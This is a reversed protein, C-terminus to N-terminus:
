SLKESDSEIGGFIGTYAGFEGRYKYHQTQGDFYINHKEIAEKFELISKRNHNLERYVAIDLKGNVKNKIDDIINMIQKESKSQIGFKDLATEPNFYKTLVIYHRGKIGIQDLKLTYLIQKKFKTITRWNKFGTVREIIEELQWVELKWAAKQKANELGNFWRSNIEDIVEAQLVDVDTHVGSGQVCASGYRQAYHHKLNLKKTEERFLNILANKVMGQRSVLKFTNSFDMYAQYAEESFDVVHRKKSM